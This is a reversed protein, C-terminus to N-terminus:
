IIYLRLEQHFSKKLIELLGKMLFQTQIDYSLHMSSYIFRDLICLRPTQAVSTSIIEPGAGRYLSHDSQVTTVWVLGALPYPPASYAGGDPDPAGGWFSYTKANYLGALSVGVFSCSVSASIDYRLARSTKRTIKLDIWYIYCFEAGGM